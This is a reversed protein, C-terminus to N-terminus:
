RTGGIPVNPRQLREEPTSRISVHPRQLRQATKTPLHRGHNGGRKSFSASVSITSWKVKEDLCHIICYDYCFEINLLKYRLQPGRFGVFQNLFIDRHQKHNSWFNAWFSPGVPDFKYLNVYCRSKLGFYISTFNNQFHKKTLEWKSWVYKNKCINDHKQSYGPKSNRWSTLSM